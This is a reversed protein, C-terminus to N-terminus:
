AREGYKSFFSEAAGSLWTMSPGVQLGVVLKRYLWASRIGPHSVSRLEASSQSQNKRPKFYEFADGLDAIMEFDWIQPRLVVFRRGFATM